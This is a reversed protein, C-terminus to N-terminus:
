ECQIRPVRAVLETRHKWFDLHRWRKETTDHVPCYQGCRPCAFQSGQEFDLWLRLQRLEVDMESKVVKWGSGLGLAQGFLINADM